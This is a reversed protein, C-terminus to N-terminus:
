QQEEEAAKRALEDAEKVRTESELQELKEKTEYYKRWAAKESDSKDSKWDKWEPKGSGKPSQGGSGWQWSKNQSM